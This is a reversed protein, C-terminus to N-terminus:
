ITTFKDAGNGSFQSFVRFTLLDKYMILETIMDAIMVMITAMILSTGIGVTLAQLLGAM